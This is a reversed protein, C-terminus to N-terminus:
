VMNRKYLFVPFGCFQGAWVAEYAGPEEVIGDVRKADVTVEVLESKQYANFKQAGEFGYFFRPM